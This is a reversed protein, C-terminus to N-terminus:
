SGAMGDTFRNAKEQELGACALAEFHHDPDSVAVRRYMDARHLFFEEKEAPSMGEPPVLPMVANAQDLTTVELAMGRVHVELYRRTEKVCPFRLDYALYVGVFRSRTPCNTGTVYPPKTDRHRPAVTRM